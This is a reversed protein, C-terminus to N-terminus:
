KWETQKELSKIADVMELYVPAAESVNSMPARHGGNHDVSITCNSINIMTGDRWDKFAQNSVIENALMEFQAATIRGSSEIREIVKTGKTEKDWRRIEVTRAANGDRNFTINARCPSSTSVIGDGNGFYENYTKACKSGADYFGKYVTTITISNVDKKDVVAQPVENSIPPPAIPTNKVPTYERTDDASLAPKAIVNFFVLCAALTVFAGTFVALIITRINAPGSM